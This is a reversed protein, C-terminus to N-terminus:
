KSYYKTCEAIDKSGAPSIKGWANVNSLLVFETLRLAFPVGFQAAWSILSVNPRINEAQNQELGFGDQFVRYKGESTKARDFITRWQGRRVKRELAESLVEARNATLTYRFIEDQEIGDAVVEFSCPEDSGNFHPRLPIAGETASSFSSRIFWGLFALPQLLSTKGSANAGLVAIATTLRTGSIPSKRSWGLVADKDNLVFSVETRERFSRFNSFTYSHLM